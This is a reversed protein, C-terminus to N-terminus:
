SVEYHRSLQKNTGYAKEKLSTDDYIQKIQALLHKCLFLCTTGVYQAKTHEIIGNHPCNYKKIKNKVM